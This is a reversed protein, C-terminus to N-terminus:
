RARDEDDIHVEVAIGVYHDAVGDAPRDHHEGTDTVASQDGNIIARAIGASPQPLVADVREAIGRRIADIIHAPAATNGSSVILPPRTSNGYVGIGDFYGHFQTDFGDPYIPGPVPAFRFPGSVVDGPSLDPGAKILVRARRM